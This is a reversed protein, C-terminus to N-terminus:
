NNVSIQHVIGSFSPVDLSWDGSGDENRVDLTFGLENYLEKVMGNKATPYYHGRITEVGLERAKEVLVNIMASEMGRKLVRCSMLFLEIDMVKGNRRGIMVCVLGNDGFCDSLKGYLCVCDPDAQCAEIENQTYRRTTLNFQNTKNTLQTIRQIYVPEFERIEATMQLSALYDGYDAFQKESEARSINSRYMEVRSLDDKSIGVSEFFGNHDIVRIYDEVRGIDPTAVDSFSSRIVGREVPNDDVFIVSDSGINLEEVIEALNRDKNQWNAKILVFDEPRLVGDPHNLGAIANERDNKSDVCLIIGTESINKMYTQFEAYAQGESSDHNIAIAEVGDDGVVGGWLTNDLDLVAAKKNKGFIAKIINAINMSLYPILSLEAPSKYLYYHKPSAWVDLGQSASLWCVDNIYFGSHTRAYTAFRRNLENIYYTRGHIDWSDANGLLRYSPLQFNSQILACGFKERLREWMTEYRAYERDLLANVAEEDDRVTPFVEINHIGSAVLIVDPNFSDLEANGFMADEWFRAYDSQYFAPRIGNDLLFLEMYSVVDNTTAGGLVAIRKDAWKIDLALIKKRISLRKRLLFETNLPYTLEELM